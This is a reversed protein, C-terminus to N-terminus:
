NNSFSSYNKKLDEFSDQLVLLHEDFHQSVKSDLNNM